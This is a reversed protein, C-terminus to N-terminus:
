VASRRRRVARVIRGWADGLTLVAAMDFSEGSGGDRRTSAVSTVSAAQASPGVAGARAGESAGDGRRAAAASTPPTYVSVLPAAALATTAKRTPGSPASARTPVTAAPPSRGILM